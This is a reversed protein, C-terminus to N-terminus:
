WSSSIVFQRGLTRVPRGQRAAAQASASASPRMRLLMIGDGIAMYPDHPQILRVLEGNVLGPHTSGAEPLPIRPQVMVSVVSARPPCAPLAPSETRLWRSPMTSTQRDAITQLKPPVM